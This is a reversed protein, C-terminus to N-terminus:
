RYQLFLFLYRKSRQTINCIKLVMVSKELKHPKQRPKETGKKGLRIKM